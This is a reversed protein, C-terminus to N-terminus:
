RWCCRSRAPRGPSTTSPCCWLSIVPVSLEGCWRLVDEVKDYGARYGEALSAHTQNSFRRNGDPIFAVHHPIPRARIQAELDRDSSNPMQGKYGRFPVVIAPHSHLNGRVQTVRRVCNM